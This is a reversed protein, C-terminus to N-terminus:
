SIRVKKISYDLIKKDYENLIGNHPTLLSIVKEYEHSKFYDHANSIVDKLNQFLNLENLSVREEILMDILLGKYNNQKRLEDWVIQFINFKSKLREELSRNKNDLCDSLLVNLKQCILDINLYLPFQLESHYKKAKMYRSMDFDIYIEDEREDYSIIIDFDISNLIVQNNIIENTLFTFRYSEVFKSFISKVTKTFM